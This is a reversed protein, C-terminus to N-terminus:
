QKSLNIHKQDFWRVIKFDVMSNQPYQLHFQVGGDRFHKFYISSPSLPWLLTEYVCQLIQNRASHYCYFTGIATFIVRRIRLADPIIM